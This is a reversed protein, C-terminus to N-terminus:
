AQIDVLHGTTVASSDASADPQKAPSPDYSQPTQIKVDLPEAAQTQAIADIRATREADSRARTAEEDAVMRHVAQAYLLERIQAAYRVSVPGIASTSGDSM